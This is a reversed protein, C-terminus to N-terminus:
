HPERAMFAQANNRLLSELDDHEVARSSRLIPAEAFPAPYDSGFIVRDKGMIRLLVDLQEDGFTLSDVHLTENVAWTPGGPPSDEILGARWLADLRALLWPLSGGGHALLVNPRTAQPILAKALEWGALAVDNPMTIGLAHALSRVGRREAVTRDHPHVFLVAGLVGAAALLDPLWGAEAGDLVATTSVEVGRLGLDESCRRLEEAAAEPDTLPLTGLGVFRSPAEAVMSAIGDNVHCAAGIAAPGDVFEVLTNPAPSLAQVAIGVSDIWSLRVGIDVSARPLLRSTGDSFRMMVGDPRSELEPVWRGTARPGGTVAVHSHLDVVGNTM